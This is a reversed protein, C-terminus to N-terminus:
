KKFKKRLIIVIALLVLLMSIILIYNPVKRGTIITVVLEAFSKSGTKRVKQDVMEVLYYGDKDSDKITVLSTSDKDEILEYGDPAEKEVVRYEGPSLKSILAIGKEEGEPNRDKTTIIYTAGNDSEKLNEDYVYNGEATEKLLMDKYVNNIRKQLSFKGGAILNGDEDKKQFELGAFGNTFSVNKDSGCVNIKKTPESPLTLGQPAKTESITYSCNTLTYVKFRGKCTKLKTTADKEDKNSIDYEGPKIEKFYLTKGNEMIEFEPGTYNDTGCGDDLDIINGKEDVTKKTLNFVKNSDTISITGYSTSGAINSASVTVARPTSNLEYGPPAYTEKVYYTGPNPIGQFTATGTKDTTVTSLVKTCSSNSCISFKAGSLAKQDLSAKKTIKLQYKPTYVKIYANNTTGVIGILNQSDAHYYAKLTGGNKNYIAIKVTKPSNEEIPNSSSITISDNTKSVELGSQNQISWYRFNTDKITVSYKKSSTNWSLAIKKAQQETSFQNPFKNFSNNIADVIRKYEVALTEPYNKAVYVNYFSNSHNNDPVYSKFSTREGTAVEWILGQAAYTRYISLLQSGSSPCNVTKKNNNTITPLLSQDTIKEAFTLIQRILNKKTNDIKIGKNNLNEFPQETYSASNLHRGPEVCYVHQRNINYVGIYGGDREGSIQNLKYKTGKLCSHYVWGSSNAAKVNFLFSFFTIIVLTVLVINKRFIKSM